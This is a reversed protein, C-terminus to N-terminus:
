PFSFSLGIPNKRIIEIAFSIDYAVMMGSNVNADPYNEGKNNRVPTPFYGSVVGIVNCDKASKNMIVPGGSFGPINHADIIILGNEAIYSIAGKRIHPSPLKPDCQFKPSELVRPFGCFLVDEALSYNEFSHKLSLPIGLLRKAVFVSIDADKAHGVLQIDLPLWKNDYRFEIQSENCANFKLKETLHTATILYQKKDVELAFLTGTDKVCKIYLIKVYCLGYITFMKSYHLLEDNKMENEM